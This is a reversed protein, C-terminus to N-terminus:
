KKVIRLLEAWTDCLRKPDSLYQLDTCDEGPVRATLLWDRKGETRYDLVEAALGKGHFYRTMDAERKLTGVPSSKLFYGGDREVYIVRAERSCSSDWIPAHQVLPRYASPLQEADLNLLTRKM